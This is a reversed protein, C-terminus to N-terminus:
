AVRPSGTRCCRTSCYSCKCAHMYIHQMCIYKRMCVQLLPNLVIIAAGSAEAEETMASLDDIICAGVMNQPALVLIVDDDPQVIGAGVAGFRVVGEGDADGIVQTPQM